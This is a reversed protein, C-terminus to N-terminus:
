VDKLGQSLKSLDVELQQARLAMQTLNEMTQAQYQEVTKVRERTMDITTKVDKKVLVNSGVNVILDGGKLEAKTFIGTAIPVLIEKDKKINHLEDLGQLTVNLEVFQEDLMQSQQQLQKMQEGIMQLEVYKQRLEEQKDEVM